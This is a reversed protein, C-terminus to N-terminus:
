LWVDGIVSSVFITGHNGLLRTDMTSLFMRLVLVGTVYRLMVRRESSRTSACGDTYVMVLSPFGRLM